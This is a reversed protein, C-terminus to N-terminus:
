DEKVFMVATGEASVVLRNGEFKAMQIDAAGTLALEYDDGVKKWKGQLTQTEASPVAGPQPNIKPFNKIVVMQDPAAVLSTKGFIGAMYRKVKQAEKAPLNPHTRRYAMVSGNADFLWRGLLPEGDYKASKGTELYTRVDALDPQLTSWVQRQLEPNKFIAQAKPYDLVERIPARKLRLETFGTDSGIDQFEPREGLSLFGPYRLLRAELLSNQYLLGALDATDYYSNDLSDVAKAVRAMGTSQLDRGLQNLIRMGRPDNESSAMQVTWYSFAYIVFSILILYATGNVFGLCAGLRANTREFLALRLDGAKYKFHLDVKKHTVLGGIKFLAMVIIFMLFPPLVWLLIPNAVGLAALVPKLLRGLPVALLAAFLIGVLSFAVRIAGQRYGLAALSALLLFALLWITMRRTLNKRRWICSSFAAGVIRPKGSPWM